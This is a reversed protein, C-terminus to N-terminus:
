RDGSVALRSSIHFSSTSRSASRSSHAEPDRLRRFTWPSAHSSSTRRGQVRRVERRSSITSSSSWRASRSTMRPRLKGPQRSSSESSPRCSRGGSRWPQFRSWCIRRSVPRGEVNGSLSLWRVAAAATPSWELAVSPSRRRAARPGMSTVLSPKIRRRGLGPSSTPRVPSVQLPSFSAPQRPSSARVSRAKRSPVTRVPM